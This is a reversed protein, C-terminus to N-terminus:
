KSIDKIKKLLDEISDITEEEYEVSNLNGEISFGRLTGNKILEWVADNNIKCSVIWSGNPLDSFEVPCIGRDKNILYSEFYACDGVMVQHELNVNASNGDAFFKQCIREIADKSFTIYYGQGAKNKRYIPQDPILAVGTVIKKEENISLKVDEEKSFKIFNREVAPFDVLSIIEVGNMEDVIDLNILPLGNYTKNAM